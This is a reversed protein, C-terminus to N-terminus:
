KGYFYETVGFSLCTLPAAKSLRYSQQYFLGAVHGRKSDIDM